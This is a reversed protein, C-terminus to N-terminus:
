EYDSLRTLMLISFVKATYIICLSENHYKCVHVYRVKILNAGDILMVRKVV